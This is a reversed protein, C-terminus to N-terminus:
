SVELHFNHGHQKFHAIVHELSLPEYLLVSRHLLPDNVLLNHWAIHLPLACSPVRAARRELVVLDDEALAPVWPPAGNEVSSPAGIVVSPLTAAVNVVPHTANYIYELIKVSKARTMPKLGFKDLEHHRQPTDMECYNGMPTVDRSKVTLLSNDPTCKMERGSSYGGVDASELENLSRDEETVTELSEDSIQQDYHELSMCNSYNLEDDQVGNDVGDEYKECINPSIQCPSHTIDREHEGTSSSHEDSVALGHEPSLHTLDLNDLSSPSMNVMFSEYHMVSHEEETFLEPTPASPRPPPSLERGPIDAWSRLLCGAPGGQATSIMTGNRYVGDGGAVLSSMRFLPAAPRVLERLTFSQPKEETCERQLKDSCSRSQARYIEVNSLIQSVKNEIINKRDEETRLMLVTKLTKKKRRQPCALSNRPRSCSMSTTTSFGFQQLTDRLCQTATVSTDTDQTLSQLSREVALALQLNERPATVEPATARRKCPGAFLQLQRKPRSVTREFCSEDSLWSYKM